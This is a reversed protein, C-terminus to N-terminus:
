LSRFACMEFSRSAETRYVYVVAAREDEYVTVGEASGLSVGRLKPLARWGAEAPCADGGVNLEATFRVATCAAPIGHRPQLSPTPARAAGSRIRREEGLHLPHALRTSPQYNGAWPM